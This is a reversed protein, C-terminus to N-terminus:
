TSYTTTILAFLVLIFAQKGEGSFVREVLTIEHYDVTKIKTVLTILDRMKLAPNQFYLDPSDFRIARESLNEDNIIYRPDQLDFSALNFQVEGLLEGRREAM